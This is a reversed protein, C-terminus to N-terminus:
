SFNEMLEVLSVAKVSTKLDEVPLFYDVGDIISEDNTRVYTNDNQL